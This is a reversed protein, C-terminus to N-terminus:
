EGVWSFLDSVHDLDLRGDLMGGRGPWIAAYHWKRQQAQMASITGLKARIM